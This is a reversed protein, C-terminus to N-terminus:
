TKKRGEWMGCPETWDTNDTTLIEANRMAAYFVDYAM